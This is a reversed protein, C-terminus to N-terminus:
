RRKEKYELYDNLMDNIYTLNGHTWFRSGDYGDEFIVGIDWGKRIGTGPEQLTFYGILTFNEAELYGVFDGLNDQSLWSNDWEHRGIDGVYETKFINIISEINNKYEDYLETESLPMEVFTNEIPYIEEKGYVNIIVNNKDFKVIHGSFM